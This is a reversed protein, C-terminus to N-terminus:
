YGFRRLAAPDNRWNPQVKVWLELHLPRGVVKEAAKQARQTLERLQKGGKGILIGKQTDREVYITMSVVDPGRGQNEQFRELEVACAYPIEEGYMEFIAERVCEMVFFREYRDTLQGEPFYAPQEPLRSVLDHLLADVGQGSKASIRHTSVFALKGSAFAKAAEVEAPKASDQKTLVLVAPVAAKSLAGLLTALEPPPDGPEVLVCVLDADQSIASHAQARMTKQLGYRPELWGPTDVFVIQFGPKDLIGLLKQRTTQPRSSVISLRAGLLRNLLTSKGANPLGALAIFGARFPSSV